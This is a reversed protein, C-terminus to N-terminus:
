RWGKLKAKETERAKRLKNRNEEDLEEFNGHCAFYPGLWGDEHTFAMTWALNPPFVYCDALSCEEPLVDTAFALKRDNSLVIYEPASQKRYQTLADSGSVSPYRGGSFIHWLYAKANVGQKDRGFVDLWQAVLSATEEESRQRLINGPKVEIGTRKMIM